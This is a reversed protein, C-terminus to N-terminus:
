RPPDVGVIAAVDVLRVLLRGGLKQTPLGSRGGSARHEEALKYASSRSLRLVEAAEAITLMLPRGELTTPPGLTHGGIARTRSMQDTM